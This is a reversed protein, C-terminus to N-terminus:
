STEEAPNNGSSLRALSASHECFAKWEEPEMPRWRGTRLRHQVADDKLSFSTVHRGSDSFAHSRGKAGLVILTGAREDWYVRDLSARQLDELAKTVPRQDRRRSEAHKTRRQQQWDGRELAEALRRLIGPVRGMRLHAEKLQGAARLEVVQKELTEVARTAIRVARDVSPEWGEALRETLTKGGPDRYIPNLRLRFQSSADRSEVVQFTMAAKVPERRGPVPILLYGVIVQGLLSYTKSSRGFSALQRGRLERGAQVLSVLRHPEAFLDDIRESGAMLLAQPYESWEPRGTEDYGTFVCDPAPPICGDADSSESRFCYIRGARYVDGAAQLEEFRPRLQEALPPDLTVAWQDAPDVSLQLALSFPASNRPPGGFQDTYGDRLLTRLADLVARTRREMRAAEGSSRAGAEGPSVPENEVMVPDSYGRFGTKAVREPDGVGTFFGALLSQGWGRM